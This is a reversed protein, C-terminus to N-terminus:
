EETFVKCITEYKGYNNVRIKYQEETEGAIEPCYIDMRYIGDERVRIHQPSGCDDAIRELFQGNYDKMYKEGLNEFELKMGYKIIGNRPIAVSTSSLYGDIANRGAYGKGNEEEVGTYYSVVVNITVYDPEVYVVEEVEYEELVEEAFISVFEKKSQISKVNNSENTNALIKTSGMFTILIIPLIVKIRKLKM